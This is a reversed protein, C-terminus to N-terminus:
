KELYYELRSKEYGQKEVTIKYNGVLSSKVKFPTVGIFSNEGNFYLMAGPPNSNIIVNKKDQAYIGNLLIIIQLFLIRSVLKIITKLRM